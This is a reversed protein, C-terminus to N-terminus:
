KDLALIIIISSLIFILKVEDYVNLLINKLFYIITVSISFSNGLQKCCSFYEKWLSFTKINKFNIGNSVLEYMQNVFDHVQVVSAICTIFHVKHTLFKVIFDCHM